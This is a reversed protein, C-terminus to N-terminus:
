RELDLLLIGHGVGAPESSRAEQFAITKGGPAVAPNSSKYGPRDNFFTLREVTGSGDLALQYIDVHGPGKKSHRDCEVLTHKGDPFIGEPEDYQGPANSYNTVKGTELDLGMVETGQHGYGSFILEKEDAPRFDQTELNVKFPVDRSDLVKKANSLRPKGDAYEIDATWMQSAGEPMRDPADGHDITWAIRLRTRSVAPGESCRTELPVPPRDFPRQLVWLEATENRSRWPNKADFEAAGSLLVDGNSLHLARTYGEHFYHHTLPRLARTAIEIEFVDGFTKEVFIIRKGDPSWDPREGFSTLRTVNAPLPEFPPLSQPEEAPLGGASCLLIALGAHMKMASDKREM